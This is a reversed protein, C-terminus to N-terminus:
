ARVSSYRADQAADPGLVLGEIVLAREVAELAAEGFDFGGLLWMYRDVEATSGLCCEGHGAFMGVDVRQPAFGEVLYALQGRAHTGLGGPM